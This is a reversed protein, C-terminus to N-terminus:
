DSRQSRCDDRDWELAWRIDFENLYAIFRLLRDGALIILLPPFPLYKIHLLYKTIQYLLGDTIVAPSKAAVESPTLLAQNQNDAERTVFEKIVALEDEKYALHLSGCQNLHFGAKSALEQWIHRSKLAHERLQGQPQGIPWIMGFNRISAGVAYPNREFVVVKYGRKAMALAHALGVIGAGVIAVDTPNLINM